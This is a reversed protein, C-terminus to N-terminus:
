ASIMRKWLPERKARAEFYECDGRRNLVHHDGPAMQEDNFAQKQFAKALKPHYCGERKAEFPASRFHVCDNCFVKTM